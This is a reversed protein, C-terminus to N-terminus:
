EHRPRADGDSPADDEAPGRSIWGVYGCKPCGANTSLIGGGCPKEYVFGWELCLVGESVALDSPRPHM